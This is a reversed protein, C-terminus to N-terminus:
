EHKGRLTSFLSRKTRKSVKKVKLKGEMSVSSQNPDIGSFYLKFFDIIKNIISNSNSNKM